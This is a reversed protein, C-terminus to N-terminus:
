VTLHSPAQISATPFNLNQSTPTPLMTGALQQEQAANQARLGSMVKRGRLTDLSVGVM